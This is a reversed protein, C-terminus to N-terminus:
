CLPNLPYLCDSTIFQRNLQQKFNGPALQCGDCVSITLHNAMRMGFSTDDMLM